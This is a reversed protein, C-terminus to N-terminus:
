TSVKKTHLVEFFRLRTRRLISSWFLKRSGARGPLPVVFLTSDPYVFCTFHSTSSSLPRVFSMWFLFTSPSPKMCGVAGEPSTLGESVENRGLYPFDPTQPVAGPGLPPRSVSWSEYRTVYSKLPPHTDGVGLYPSSTGTSSKLDPPDQDWPDLPLGQTLPHVPDQTRETGRM